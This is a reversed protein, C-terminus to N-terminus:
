VHDPGIPLLLAALFVGGRWVRRARIPFRAAAERHVPVASRRGASEIEALEVGPEDKAAGGLAAGDYESRRKKVM